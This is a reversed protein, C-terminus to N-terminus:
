TSLFDTIRLISVCMVTQLLTIIGVIESALGLISMAEM